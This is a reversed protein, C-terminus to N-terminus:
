EREGLYQAPPLIRVGAVDRGFLTGFHRYDGTILHTAGAEVAALLVVRDDDPLPLDEPLRAATPAGAEPVVRVSKLLELGRSRRVPDPLNRLAEEAAHASTVLRIDPLEWLRRVRADEKWAGSVIVNADLFVLDM